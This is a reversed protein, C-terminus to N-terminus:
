CVSGQFQLAEANNSGLEYSGPALKYTLLGETGMLKCIAVILNKM